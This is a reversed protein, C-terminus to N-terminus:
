EPVPNFTGHTKGKEDTKRKMAILFRTGEGSQQEITGNLQEVFGIILKFGLTDTTRWDFDKGFGVGNDRYILNLGKEDDRVSIAIEGKRGDPFAHKLSNSVLENVILGFPIATNIDAFINNADILLAITKPRVEFLTFLQTTLYKVYPELDIKALDQSAYLKEHVFAMARIRNQSERMAQAVKEDGISRSQLSLLSIIIQFNNRVRHHLERLLIEKEHLSAIVREEAAKRGTIDRDIGRYGLLNRQADHVPVGNTELIVHRGDKHLNVNELGIILKEGAIIEQFIKGTKEAEEPPMLDFPTKGIVEEPEYGLLDRVKPSVYTYKGDRNVEWVFDSTTEVLSRFRGESEKLADDAMGKLIVQSATSAIDELLKEEWPEIKQTSFLALVGIPRGEASSLRYGAFSVLGLSRAWEHDHVRPDNTVDNTVFGPYEGTAVRGIKYAGMPVRRHGGDIHTYRGSSVMLHLCHTRDRCVHPGETVSAHQCGKECLDADRTMWIRAFDASFIEVVGDTILKLKQPLDRAALLNEKLASLKTIHENIRKRETIETELEVNVNALEATRERVRMELEDHANKLAAEKNKLETIDRSIGLISFINGAKDVLPVLHTDYWRHSSPLPIDMEVHQSKGTEFVEHVIASMKEFTEEPFLAQLPMGTIEEVTKQAQAAGFSNIYIIRLNRNMIVIVDQASEALIRYRYESQALAEEVQKRETIDVYAGLVGSIGGSSDQLPTKSTLLWITRGEPTTQPEEILAKAKGTEIVQRDDARYLEAQKRWGMQYDDKGILEEPKNFGADQAFPANCGLYHLDKDKWFVRVPITDLVTRLVQQSDHLAEEIQKRETIDQNAGHTKVTRGEADKTIGFRVIIHRVEGDRRIIRHEIQRTFDPDTAAIANNTEDSVVQMDDPHVFERAYVEAPMQYGGEREATTGYLAYFWDNFTFIGTPVDLEWHAMHALNMAETLLIQNTRLTEEARKRDTIDQFTGKLLLVTGDVNVGQGIARTWLHRGKATTFALELDFSSGNEMCHQLAAELVSRGPMDFFRISNPLDFKEGESIEYIRYTEKTLRVKNTRIDVEWGGVRAMKGVQNLLNESERLANEATKLETIDRITGQFGVVNGNNDKRIVTTILTNIVTGDKKKLNIPFERTFGKQRIIDIHRAREDPDAYLDRVNVQLLEERSDYGFLEVAADNLDIWRGDTSTIFVCDQSTTFFARYKEESEHLAQSAIKENTVDRNSVRRGWAKGQDDNVQRCAHSIWRVTGDQCRIRFDVTLARSSEWAARNHEQVSALDDPHVITELLNPDAFFEEPTYGTIRECSPSTYILQKDQGQWYEWDSTFDAITHFKAESESLEKETRKRESIDRVFVIFQRKQAQYSVSVEVDITGGDKTRHRAEFRDSGTKLIKQMHAFAVDKSENEDLDSISKGLLEERSFGTMRCYNENVEILRGTFDVLNYGDRTTRLLTSYWEAYERSIQVAKERDTIDVGIAIYRGISSKIDPLGRTNWLITKQTGDRCTITTQLNELYTDKKIIGKIKETIEKRYNKDPYIRKWVANGGIVEAAPYGSIQEAAHNWEVIRGRSDLMMLWVNANNIISERVESLRRMDSLMRERDTIDTVTLVVRHEPLLGASMLVTRTGGTKQSLHAEINRAHGETKVLDSFRAREETDQWITELTANVLDVPAFGLMDAGRLNAEAIRQSALDVIFIGDESNTIITNRELERKQLTESLFSVVAAIGVFVVFRVLSGSIVEWDSFMFFTVLAVYLLGLAASLIVGKKHYHYALLIIPFYYLHMFIITIGQSLCHVTVALVSLSSVLVLAKWMNETMSFGPRPAPAPSM